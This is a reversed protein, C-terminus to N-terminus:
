MCPAFYKSMETPIGTAPDVSTSSKAQKVIAVARTQPHHKQMERVSCQCAQKAKPTAVNLQKVCSSTYLAVLAPNYSHKKPTAEAAQPTPLLLGIANIATFLALLNLPRNMMSM